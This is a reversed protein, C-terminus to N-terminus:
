NNNETFNKINLKRNDREKIYEDPSEDDLINAASRTSEKM